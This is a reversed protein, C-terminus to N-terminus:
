ETILISDSTDPGLPWLGFFALFPDCFADIGLIANGLELWGDMQKLPDPVGPADHFHLYLRFQANEGGPGLDCGFFLDIVQPIYHTTYIPWTGTAALLFAGTYRGEYGFRAPNWTLTVTDNITEGCPPYGANGCWKVCGPPPPRLSDTVDDVYGDPTCYESWLQGFTGFQGMIGFHRRWWNFFTLYLVAPMPKACCGTVECRCRKCYATLKDGYANETEFWLDTGCEHDPSLLVPEYGDIEIRCDGTYEDRVLQVPGWARADRDWEYTELDAEDEGWEARYRLVCLERCVCRCNGCFPEWCGDRQELPLRDMRFARIAVTASCGYFEIPLDINPERCTHGTDDGIPYREDLEAATSTVRWVCQGPYEDHELAVRLDISELLVGRHLCSVGGVYTRGQRTLSYTQGDCRDCGELRACLTIPLCRCCPDCDLRVQDCSRCCCKKPRCPAPAAM